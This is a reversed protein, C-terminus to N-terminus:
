RNVLWKTSGSSKSSQCWVPRCKRCATFGNGDSLSIDLLALDFRNEFLITLADSINSGCTVGYGSRRLLRTLNKAIEKNDELIFIQKM